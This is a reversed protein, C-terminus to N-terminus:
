NVVTEDRVDEDGAATILWGQGPACEAVFVRVSRPLGNGPLSLIIAESRQKLDFHLDLRMETIRVYRIMGVLSFDGSLSREVVKIDVIVREPGHHIMLPLGGIYVQIIIIIIM